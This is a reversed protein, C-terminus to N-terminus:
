SCTTASTEMFSLQLGQEKDKKWVSREKDHQHLVVSVSVIMGDVEQERCDLLIQQCCVSNKARHIHYPM